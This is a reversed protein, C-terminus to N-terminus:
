KRRKKCEDWWWDGVLEKPQCLAGASILAEVIEWNEKWGARTLATYGHKEQAELNAGKDVLQKLVSVHNEEAAAHLPSVKYFNKSDNIDAGAGVLLLVIDLNGSYAAAHLPTMGRNNRSGIDAGLNLMLQVAPKNGALAAVTLPTEKSPNRAEISVGTNILQQLADTDGSKAADHIPEARAPLVSIGLALGILVIYRGIM